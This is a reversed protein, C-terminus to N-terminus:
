TALSSRTGIVTVVSRILLIGDSRYAQDEDDAWLKSPLHASVILLPRGIPPHLNLMKVRGDDFAATVVGAPFHTFARVRSELCPLEWYTRHPGASENIALVLRGSSADAEALLLVDVDHERCLHGVAEGIERRGVNWFM